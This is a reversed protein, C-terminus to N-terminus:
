KAQRDHCAGHRWGAGTLYERAAKLSRDDFGIPLGCVNCPFTHTMLRRHDDVLEHITGVLEEESGASYVTLNTVEDVLREKDKKPILWAGTMEVFRDYLDKVVEPPQKLKIVVQVPGLGKAFLEFARSATLGETAGTAGHESRIRAITGPSVHHKRAMDKWPVRRGLDELVAKELETESM